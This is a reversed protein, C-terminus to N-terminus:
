LISKVAMMPNYGLYQSSLQNLVGVSAMAILIWLMKASFYLPSLRKVASEAYGKFYKYRGCLYLIGVCVALGQSFFIGAIWLVGLFMSFYETSNTQARYVREFDENGSVRPPSVHFKRRAYIVQLSFYAQELVSLITVLALLSCDDLMSAMVRRGSTTTRTDPVRPDRLWLVRKRRCGAVPPVPLPATVDHRM